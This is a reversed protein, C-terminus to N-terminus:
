RCGEEGGSDGAESLMFDSLEPDNPVCLLCGTADAEARLAARTEADPSSCWAIVAGSLDGRVYGRRSLECRGDRAADLLAACPESDVVTVRAGYGAWSLAIARAEAGGGFVVVPRGRLDLLVPLGQGSAAAM